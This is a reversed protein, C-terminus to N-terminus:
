QHSAWLPSILVERKNKLSVYKLAGPQPETPRLLMDRCVHDARRGLALVVDSPHLSSRSLSSLCLILSVIARQKQRKQTRGSQDWLAPHSSGGTLAHAAQLPMAGRWSMEQSSIPASLPAAGQLSHPLGCLLDFGFISSLITGLPVVKVEM